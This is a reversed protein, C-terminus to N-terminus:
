IAIKHLIVLLRVLIEQPHQQHVMATYVQKLIILQAVLTVMLRNQLYSTSTSKINAIVVLDTYGTIGTLDFDVSAAASGTVTTTKLAVYTNTAM